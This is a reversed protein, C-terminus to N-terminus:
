LDFLEKKTIQALDKKAQELTFPKSDYHIKITRWLARFIEELDLEWGQEELKKREEETISEIIEEAKQYLLVELKEKIKSLEKEQNNKNM